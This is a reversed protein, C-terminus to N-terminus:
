IVWSRAGYQGFAVPFIVGNLTKLADFLIQRNEPRCYLLMVGGGGAGSLKVAETGNLFAFSIIKELEKNSIIESTKKKEEWNTKMIEAISSINETIIADKMRYASEKLKHMAEITKKNGDKTNQIQHSIIAGSNHSRGNYFMLLSSELENVITKNLCLPNVIVEGSKKFQMFNFGGFAAAYQDQMGGLLGLDEREISYALRALEYESLDLKLWRDFAKLITVIMTSSTGLGSGAPADSSTTMRFSLPKGNNYDKVIRNYIGKHLILSNEPELYAESKVIVKCNMDPAIFVIKNDSTPEISCYSYMQITANLVAGEYISSYSLLDTGGGALGLRLPARARITKNQIMDM